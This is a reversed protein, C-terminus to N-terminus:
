PKKESPAPLPREEPEPHTRPPEHAPHHLLALLHAAAAENTLIEPDDSM